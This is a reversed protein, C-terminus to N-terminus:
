PPALPPPFLQATRVFAFSSASRYAPILSSITRRVSRSSCFLWM